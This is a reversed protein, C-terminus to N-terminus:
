SREVCMAIGQGGGICLTAIGRKKNRNKLEHILTILIRAGSAGIPHGLAIAGGNVNVKKMDWDLEKSVALAQAAFAENAEILDLDGIKWNAISLAKKVANIRKKECFIKGRTALLKQEDIQDSYDKKVFCTKYNLNNLIKLIEICLPTKGTGGLYINGVCITKINDIKNKKRTLYSYLIILYSFPLLVLAIFNPKEEDWFKPKKFKM